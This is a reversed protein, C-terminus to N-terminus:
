LNKYFIYFIYRKVKAILGGAFSGLVAGPLAVLGSEFAAAGATKHFREELIKPGFTM